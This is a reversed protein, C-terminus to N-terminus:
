SGFGHELDDATITSYEYNGRGDMKLVKEHYKWLSKRHSVTLLTIGLERCRTYMMGEVDVSM